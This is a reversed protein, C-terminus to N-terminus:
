KPTSEPVLLARVYTIQILKTLEQLLESFQQKLNSESNNWRNISSNIFFKLERISCRTSQTYAAVPLTVLMQPSIIIDSQKFITNGVLIVGEDKGQTYLQFHVFLDNM